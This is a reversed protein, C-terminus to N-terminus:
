RLRIFRCAEDAMRLVMVEEGDRFLRAVTPSCVGGESIVLAPELEYTWSSSLTLGRSGPDDADAVASTGRVLIPEGSRYALRRLDNVERQLEFFAAHATAQDLLRAGSPMLVGTAIAMIALVVLMEVLSVGARRHRRETRPAAASTPM